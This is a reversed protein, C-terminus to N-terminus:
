GLQKRFIEASFPQGHAPYITKAGLDLLKKWSTKVLRIDEAFIPMGPSLRMVKASMALDGVFAEGSDLLVSISGLTHGPTYVVKGPIGYSDLDLGDDTLEINVRPTPVRNNPLLKAMAALFKGWATTGPTIPSGGSEFYDKEQAHVAVQASSLATIEKALGIHDFHGHTLLLLDIDELRTEAAALAKRLRDMQGTTGADILLNKEGKLLFINAFGFSLPHIQVTM